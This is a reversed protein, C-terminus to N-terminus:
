NGARIRTFLGASTLADDFFVVAAGGNSLATLATALQQNIDATDARSYKTYTTSSYTFTIYIYKGSEPSSSNGMYYGAGTITVAGDVWAAQAPTPAMVMTCLAGVLALCFAIKALKKM